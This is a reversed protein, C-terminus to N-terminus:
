IRFCDLSGFRYFKCPQWVSCILSLFMGFFIIAPTVLWPNAHLSGAIIIIVFNVLMSAVLSNIRYQVPGPSDSLGTFMTGLPFAIFGALLDYHYLILSPLLTGVTMRIGTFLNQSSLFNRIKNTTEM